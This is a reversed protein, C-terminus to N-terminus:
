VEGQISIMLLLHWDVSHLLMRFAFSKRQHGGCTKFGPDWNGDQSDSNLKENNREPSFPSFYPFFCLVGDQIVHIVLFSHLQPGFITLCGGLHKRLIKFHHLGLIQGLTDQTFPSCFAPPLVHVPCSSPPQAETFFVM